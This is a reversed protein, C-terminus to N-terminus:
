TAGSAEDPPEDFRLTEVWKGIRAATAAATSRM